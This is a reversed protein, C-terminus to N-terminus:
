ANSPTVDRSFTHLLYTSLRRWYRKVFIVIVSVLVLWMGISATCSVFLMRLPHQAFGIVSQLYWSQCSLQYMNPTVSLNISLILLYHTYLTLQAHSNSLFHLGSDGFLLGPRCFISRDNPYLWLSNLRVWHYVSYWHWYLTHVGKILWQSM